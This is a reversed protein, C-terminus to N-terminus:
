KIFLFVFLRNFAETLQKHLSTYLATNYTEMVYNIVLKLVDIKLPPCHEALFILRNIRMLGTFGSSYTDIDISQNNIEFESNYSINNGTNGLLNNGSVNNENENDMDVEDIGVSVNSAYNMNITEGHM